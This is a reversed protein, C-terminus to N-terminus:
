SEAGDESDPDDEFGLEMRKIAKNIAWAPELLISDFRDNDDLSARYLREEEQEVMEFVLNMLVGLAQQLKKLQQMDPSSM